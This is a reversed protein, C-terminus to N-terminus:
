EDGGELTDDEDSSPEIVDSLEGGVTVPAFDLDVVKCTVQYKVKSDTDIYPDKNEVDKLAELEDDELEDVEIEIIEFSTLYPLKRFQEILDAVAVKHPAEVEFVIEGDVAEFNDIETGTWHDIIFNSCAAVRLMHMQLNEPLHYKNYIDIINM